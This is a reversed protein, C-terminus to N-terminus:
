LEIRHPGAQDGDTTHAKAELGSLKFTEDKEVM